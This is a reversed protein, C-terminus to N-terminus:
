GGVPNQSTRCTTSYLPAIRVETAVHLRAQVKGCAVLLMGAARPLLYGDDPEPHSLGHRVSSRLGHNVVPPQCRCYGRCPSLVKGPGPLVAAVIILRSQGVSTTSGDRPLLKNVVDVVQGADGPGTCTVAGEGGRRTYYEMAMGMTGPFPNPSISEPPSLPTMARPQPEPLVVTGPSVRALCTPSYWAGSYGSFIQKLTANSGMVASGPSFIPADRHELGQERRHGEAPGTTGQAQDPPRSSRSVCGLCGGKGAEFQVSPGPRALCHTSAISAVSFVRLEVKLEHGQEKKKRDPSM